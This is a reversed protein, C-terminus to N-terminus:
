GARLRGSGADGQGVPALAPRGYFHGQLCDFGMDALCDADAATEVCEAVTFMDLHEALACLARTVCQNDASAHIGRIFQGDIKLADFCFERLHRFSTSAAGFNDLAFGVSHRRLSRMFHAMVDPMQMASRETVEFILREGVTPGAALGRRLADTWAPWAISRASMNVSLRLGPNRALARLGLDLALTDIQRGLETPEVAAIFHRAPIIRGSEDRFRVLAEHFAVRDTERARVVPQYVLFVDSRALAARVAAIVARDRLEEAVALPSEDEAEPFSSHGDAGLAM